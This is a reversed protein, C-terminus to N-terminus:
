IHIRSSTLFRCIRSAIKLSRLKRQWTGKGLQGALDRLARAADSDYLLRSAITRLGTVMWLQRLVPGPAADRAVFAWRLPRSEFGRHGISVSTKSVLEILRESVEGSGSMGGLIRPLGRTRGWKLRFQGEILCLVGGRCLPPAERCLPWSLTMRFATFSKKAAVRMYARREMVVSFRGLQNGNPLKHVAPGRRQAV